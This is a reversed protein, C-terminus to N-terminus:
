TSASWTAPPANRAEHSGMRLLTVDVQLSTNGLLRLLQLETDTTTPMLNVIAIRLPRIDQHTARDETMAFVNEARLSDYAPLTAPIKIPM